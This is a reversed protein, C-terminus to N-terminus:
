EQFFFRRAIFLTIYKNQRVSVTLARCRHLESPYAPWRSKSEFQVAGTTGGRRQIIKRLLYYIMSSIGLFVSGEPM